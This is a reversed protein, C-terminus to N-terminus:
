SVDLWPITTLRQGYLYAWGYRAFPPLSISVLDPDHTLLTIEGMPAGSTETIFSDRRIYTAVVGGGVSDDRVVYTTLGYSGNYGVM